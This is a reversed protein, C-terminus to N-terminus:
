DYNDWDVNHTRGNSWSFEFFGETNRSVGVGMAIIRITNGNDYSNLLYNRYIYSIQTSSIIENNIINGSRDYVQIVFHSTQVGNYTFQPGGADTINITEGFVSRYDLIPFIFTSNGQDLTEHVKFSFKFNSRSYSDDLCVDFKYGRYSTGGNNEYISIHTHYNDSEVYEGLRSVSPIAVTDYPTNDQLMETLLLYRPDPTAMNGIQNTFDVSYKGASTIEPFSFFTHESSDNPIGRVSFLYSYTPASTYDDQAPDLDPLVDLEGDEKQRHFIYFAGTNEQDVYNPITVVIKYLWYTMLATLNSLIESGYVTENRYISYGDPKYVTLGTQYGTLDRAVGDATIFKVKFQDITSDGDMNKPFEYVLNELSNPNVVSSIEWVKTFKKYVVLCDGTNNYERNDRWIILSVYEDRQNLLEALGSLTTKSATDINYNFTWSDDPHEGNYNTGGNDPYGIVYYFSNEGRSDKVVFQSNKTKDYCHLVYAYNGGITSPTGLGDEYINHNGYSSQSEIYYYDVNVDNWDPQPSLEPLSPEPDIQPDPEYHDYYVENKFLVIGGSLEYNTDIDTNSGTVKGTFSLSYSTGPISYPDKLDISFSGVDNGNNCSITSIDDEVSYYTIYYKNSNPVYVLKCTWDRPPYVELNGHYDTNGSAASDSGIAQTFSKAFLSQIQSTSLDYPCNRLSFCARFMKREISDSPAPPISIYAFKLNGGNTVETKEVQDYLTFYPLAPGIRFDIKPGSKTSWVSDSTDRLSSLIEFRALDTNIATTGTYGTLETIGSTYSLGVRVQITSSPSNYGSNGTANSWSSSYGNGDFSWSGKGSKMYIIWNGEATFKLPYTGGAGTWSGKSEDVIGIKNDKHSTRLILYGGSPSVLDATVDVGEYILNIDKEVQTLVGNDSYYKFRFTITAIQFDEGSNYLNLGHNTGGTYGGWSTSIQLINGQSQYERYTGYNESYSGISYTYFILEHNVYPRPRKTGRTEGFQFYTINNKVSINKIGAGFPVGGFDLTYSDYDRGLLINESDIWSMGSSLKFFSFPDFSDGPLRASDHSYYSSSSNVGGRMSRATVSVPYTSAFFYPNGPKQSSLGTDYFDLESSGTTTTLVGGFYGDLNIGSIQITKPLELGTRVTGLSYSDSVTSIGTIDKSSNKVIVTGTIPKPVITLTYETSGTGNTIKIISPKQLSLGYLEEYAGTLTGPILTLEGSSRLLCRNGNGDMTAGKVYLYLEQQKGNPQTTIIRGSNGSIVAAGMNISIPVLYQLTPTNSVEGRSEATKKTWVTFYDGTNNYNGIRWILLCHFEDSMLLLDGLEELTATHEDGSDYDFTWTYDPFTHGGSGNNINEDPTAVVYRFTTDTGSYTVTVEGPSIMRQDYGHLIFSYNGKLTRPIGVGDESVDHYGYAKQDEKFSVNANEIQLYSYGLEFPIDNEEQYLHLVQNSGYFTVDLDSSVEVGCPDKKILSLPISFDFEQSTSCSIALDQLTEPFLEGEETITEEEYSITKTGEIKYGISYLELPIEESDTGVDIPSVTIGSVTRTISSTSSPQYINLSGNITNGVDDKAIVLLQGTRVSSGPNSSIELYHRSNESRISFWTSDGAARITASSYLPMERYTRTQYESGNISYEDEWTYLLHIEITQTSPGEIPKDLIPVVSILERSTTLVTSNQAITYNILTDTMGRDCIQLTVSRQEGTRNPLFHIIYEKEGFQNIDTIDDQATLSEEFYLWGPLSKNLLFLHVIDQNVYKPSAKLTITQSNGTITIGNGDGGELAEVKIGTLWTRRYTMDVTINDNEKNSSPIGYYITNLGVNKIAFRTVIDSDYEQHSAPSEINSIMALHQSGYTELARIGRKFYRFYDSYSSINPYKIGVNITNVNIWEPDTFEFELEATQNIKAEVDFYNVLSGSIDSKLQNKNGICYIEDTDGQCLESYVPGFLYAGAGSDTYYGNQKPGWSRLDIFIKRLSIISNYSDDFYGLSIYDGQTGATYGEGTYTLRITYGQKAYGSTIDIGIWSPKYDVLWTKDTNFTLDVVNRGYHGSTRPSMSLFVDKNPFGVIDLYGSKGLQTIRLEDTNGFDNIFEITASRDTDTNEGIVFSIISNGAKRSGNFGPIEIWSPVTNINITWPYNSRVTTSITDGSKAVNINHDDLNLYGDVSSQIITIPVRGLINHSESDHIALYGSATRRNSSENKIGSITLVNGELVLSSWSKAKEDLVVETTVESIEHYGVTTNETVIPNVIRTVSFPNFDRYIIIGSAEFVPILTQDTEGCLYGYETIFGEQFVHVIIDPLGTLVTGNVQKFIVKASRSDESSNRNIKINATVQTSNLQSFSVENVINYPDEKTYNLLTESGFIGTNVYGSSSYDRRYTNFVVETGNSGSSTAFLFEHASNELSFDLVKPDYSSDLLRCIYGVFNKFLGVSIVDTDYGLSNLWENLKETSIVSLDLKDYGSLRTVGYHLDDQNLMEGISHEAGDKNQILGAKRIRELVDWNHGGADEIHSGKHKAPVTIHRADIKGDITTGRKLLFPVENISPADINELEQSTYNANTGFLRKGTDANYLVFSSAAYDITSSSEKLPIDIILTCGSEPNTVNYLALENASPDLIKSGETWHILNVGIRNFNYASDFLDGSGWYIGGILKDGKKVIRLYLEEIRYADPAVNLLYSIDDDFYSFTIDFSSLEKDSSDFFGVELSCTSSGEATEFIPFFAEGISQIDDGITKENAIIKASKVIINLLDTSSINDVRGLGLDLKNESFGPDRREPNTTILEM